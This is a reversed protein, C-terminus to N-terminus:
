RYESQVVSFSWAFSDNKVFPSIGHYSRPPMPARRKPPGGNHTALSIGWKKDMCLPPVTCYLSAEARPMIVGRWLMPGAERDPTRAFVCPVSLRPVESFKQEVCEPTYPCSYPGSSDEPGRM